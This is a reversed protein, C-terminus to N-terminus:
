FSLFHLTGPARDSHLSYNVKAVNGDRVVKTAIFLLKLRDIRVATNEVIGKLVGSWKVDGDSQGKSLFEVPCDNECVALIHQSGSASQTQFIWM